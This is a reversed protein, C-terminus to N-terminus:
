VVITLKEKARTIGTYLWRNSDSRFVGSEDHVVVEDWESGQSKHVTLVHGWDLHEQTAKAHYVAKTNGSYAGRKKFHHEEFLAQPCKLTYEINDHDPNQVRMEMSAAGNELDGVDEMCTLISGNVLSPYERSNRQVLIPEDKVPGTSTIGLAKRIEGTIAFRKKHTGCLVMAESDMDLTVDDDRRRIVRANDGYKGPKIYEGQRAMTALQIIPNEAAQRHIETLFVDPTDMDFGHDSDIPPLQGPDGIALIPINFAALDDAIFTGVMSAEDVVILKTREPLHKRDKLTFSLGEDSMADSLENELRNMLVQLDHNNLNAFMVRADENGKAAELIRYEWEQDARDLNDKIEQSKQTQPMYIAKHITTAPVYWGSDRLKGTLVKAAKGTPAMYMVEDQKLGLEEILAAVCTSKGSGAYGAFVFAQGPDIGPTLRQPTYTQWAVHDDEAPPPSFQFSKAADSYWEATQQIAEWQHNTPTISM